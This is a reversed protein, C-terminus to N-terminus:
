QGVVSLLELEDAVNRPIGKRLLMSRKQSQSSKAQNLIDTVSSRADSSVRDLAVDLVVLTLLRRFISASSGSRSHSIHIEYMQGLNAFNNLCDNVISLAEGAAATPGVVLDPTIIDFVAAKAVRPHGSVVSIVFMLQQYRLLNM